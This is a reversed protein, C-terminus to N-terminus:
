NVKKTATESNNNSSKKSKIFLNNNIENTAATGERGEFHAMFDFGGLFDTM